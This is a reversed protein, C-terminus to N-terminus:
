VTISRCGMLSSTLSMHKNRTTCNKNYVISDLVKKSRVGILLAHGTLSGYKNGSSRVRWGMDFSAQIRQLPNDEEVAAQQSLLKVEEVASHM